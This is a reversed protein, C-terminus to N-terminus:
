HGINPHVYTVRGHNTSDLQLVLADLELSVYHASRALGSGLGNFGIM